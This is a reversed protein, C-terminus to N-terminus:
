CKKRNNRKIPIQTLMLTTVSAALTLHKTLGVKLMNLHKLVIQFLLAM